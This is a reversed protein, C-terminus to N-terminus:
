FSRGFALILQVRDQLALCMGPLPVQFRARGQGWMVRQPEPLGKVSLERTSGFICYGPETVTTASHLTCCARIGGYLGSLDALDESPVHTIEPFARKSPREWKAITPVPKTPTPM